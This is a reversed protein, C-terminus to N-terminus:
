ASEDTRFRRVNRGLLAVGLAFTGAILAGLALADRPGIWSTVLGLYAGGLSNASMACIFIVSMVRGRQEERALLQFTTSRVTVSLSDLFGLLAVLVLSLLFWHSYAFMFLAVAHALTVALMLAGKNRINGVFLVGLFGLMAGLAPAALLVGLGAAGVHLEDKAMVPMMAPYYGFVMTVIDLLLFALLVPTRLTFHFGEFLFRMSIRPKGPAAIGKAHTTQLMAVSVIAPLFLAANILYAIGAGLTEVVLGGVLPGALGAAQSATSRLAMANMLDAPAVSGPIMAQQAPSALSELMSACFTIAYIHWVEIAGSLTLGALLLVLASQIVTVAQILVRRDVLDALTGGFLGMALVPLGQFLFTLGLLRPDGTIQYVQFANAINRLGSGTQLSIQAIFLLRFNRYGLSALPRTKPKTLQM